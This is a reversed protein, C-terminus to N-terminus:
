DIQKVNINVQVFDPRNSYSAEKKTGPWSVLIQYKDERSVGPEFTASGDTIEFTHSANNSSEDFSGIPTDDVKGNGAKRVLEYHLPLNGSTVIEIEYSQAVESVQGNKANTVTLTASSTAGPVFGTTGPWTSMFTITESHGFLAVRAEDSSSGATTYKAMAGSVAHSTLLVAGLLVTLTAALIRERSFGNRDSNTM